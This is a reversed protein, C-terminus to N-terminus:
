LAEQYSYPGTSLAAPGTTWGPWGPCSCSKGPACPAPVRRSSRGGLLRRRRRALTALCRAAGAHAVAQRPETPIPWAPGRAKAWAPAGSAAARRAAGLSALQGSAVAGYAGVAPDFHCLRGPSEPDALWDRAIQSVIRPIGSANKLRLLTAVDVWLAPGLDPQTM